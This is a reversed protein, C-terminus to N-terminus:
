FIIENAIKARDPLNSGRLVVCNELRVGAGITCDGEIYVNPGIVSNPGIVTKDGVRAPALFRVGASRPLSSGQAGASENRLYHLNIRLLDAPLTLDMRGTLMLGRVKGDREILMQIADQLEYEGRPSAPILPLYEILRRSFIYLPVSGINSPAEALTPKEVIREVWDGALAVIGMRTIEEPGVELLTLMGNPQEAQWIALMRRIESETVLNDCSSLVFDEYILPAAQMLAHGMGLQETQPILTVNAEIQTDSRFHQVIEEDEPNTVLVFDRIGNAILPEMVREVIPKGVVPCIAKTRSATIPYLRTGRGAALIVAQVPM